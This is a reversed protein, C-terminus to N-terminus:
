VPVSDCTAAGTMANIFVQGTPFNTGCRTTTSGSPTTKTIYVTHTGLPTEFKTTTNGNIVTVRRSVTTWQTHYDYFCGALQATSQAPHQVDIVGCDKGTFPPATVPRRSCAGLLSATLLAGAALAMTRQHM